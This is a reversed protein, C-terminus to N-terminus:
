TGVYSQYGYELSCMTMVWVVFNTKVLTYSQFKM